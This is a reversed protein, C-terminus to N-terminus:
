CCECIFCVILCLFILLVFICVCFVICLFFLFNFISCNVFRNFSTIVRKFVCVFIFAILAFMDLMMFDNFFFKFVFLKFFIEFVIFLNLFCNLFKFM